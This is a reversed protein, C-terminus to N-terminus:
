CAYELRRLSVIRDSAVALEAFDYHFDSADGFTAFQSVGGVSNM